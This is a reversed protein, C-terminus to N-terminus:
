VIGNLYAAYGDAYGRMCEDLSLKLVTVSKYWRYAERVIEGKTLGSTEAAKDAGAQFAIEYDYTMDERERERKVLARYQTIDAIPIL